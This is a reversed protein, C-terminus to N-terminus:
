NAVAFGHESHVNDNNDILPHEMEVHKPVPQVARLHAVHVKQEQHCANSPEGGCRKAKSVDIRGNRAREAVKDLELEDDARKNKGHTEGVHDEVHDLHPGALAGAGGCEDHECGGGRRRRGGHRDIRRAAHGALGESDRLDVHVDGKRREQHRQWVDAREERRALVDRSEESKRERSINERHRPNLESSKDVGGPEDAGNGPEVDNPRKQKDRCVDTARDKGAYGCRRRPFVGNRISWRVAARREEKLMRRDGDFGPFDDPRRGLWLDGVDLGLTVVAGCHDALGSVVVRHERRGCSIRGARLRRGRSRVVM